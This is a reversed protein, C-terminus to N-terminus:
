VLQLSKLGLKDPLNEELIPRNTILAADGRTQYLIKQLLRKRSGKKKGPLFANAVVVHGPMYGSMGTANVVMVAHIEENNEETVIFGGFSSIEKLAYNILYTIQEKSIQSRYQNKSIFNILESRKKNSLLSLSNYIKTSTM